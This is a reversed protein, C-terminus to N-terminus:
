ETERWETVRAPYPSSTETINITAVITRQYGRVVGTSTIVVTPHTNVITVTYTSGSSVPFEKATFGTDWTFDSRLASIADNVGADAVYLAETSGLHNRLIQLDTGVVNLLTGILLAGFTLVFVTLLLVYGTEGSAAPREKIPLCNKM